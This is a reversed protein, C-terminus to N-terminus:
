YARLWLWGFSAQPFRMEPLASWGVREPSIGRDTGEAAERKRMRMDYCNRQLRIRYIHSRVM